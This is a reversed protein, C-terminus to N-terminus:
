LIKAKKKSITEVYNDTGEIFSIVDGDQRYEFQYTKNGDKSIKNKEFTKIDFTKKQNTSQSSFSVFFLIGAIILTKCFNM